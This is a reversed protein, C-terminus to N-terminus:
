KYKNDEKKKKKGEKAFKRFIKIYAKDDYKVVKAHGNLLIIANVCKERLENEDFVDNPKELWVLRLLRGYKDTESKDKTLYLIKKDKLLNETFHHAEEGEKTNRKPDSAVSEPCDIELMRLKKIVGDISVILTDGDVIRVLKAEEIVTQLDNKNNDAFVTSLDYISNISNIHMIGIASTIFVFVTIAIIILRNNMEM